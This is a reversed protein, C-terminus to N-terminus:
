DVIAGCGAYGAYSPPAVETRVICDIAGVRLFRPAAILAHLQERPEADQQVGNAPWNTSTHVRAKQQADSFPQNSSIYIDLEVWLSFLAM